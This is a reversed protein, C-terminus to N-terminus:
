HHRPGDEFRGRDQRRFEQRSFRHTFHELREGSKTMRITEYHAIREGNRLRSIIKKEEEHLEPPIVITIPKGIAEEPTFGFIRQAGDNWTQIVGNLTKSIIADDSSEVIAVLRSRAEEAEWRVGIDEVVSIFHKLKATADRAGSVSLSAWLISGDKRIYRKELVYTDLAGSKVKEGQAVDDALDDPYTIDHFTMKLLEDKSYGTIECLKDNVRLFRGDPSVNAVGVAALEFTTRDLEESDRLAQELAVSRQLIEQFDWPVPVSLKSFEQTL